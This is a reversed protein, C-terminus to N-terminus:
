ASNLAQHVEYGATFSDVEETPTVVYPPNFVLLDVNGHLRDSFCQHLDSTIAEVPNNNSKSIKQTCETARPNIDTCRTIYLSKHINSSDQSANWL